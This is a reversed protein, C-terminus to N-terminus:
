SSFVDVSYQLNLYTFVIYPLGGLGVPRGVSRGLDDSLDSERLASPDCHCPFRAQPSTGGIYNISAVKFVLMEVLANPFRSSM